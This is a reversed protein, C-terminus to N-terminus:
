EIEIVVRRNASRGEDSKNDRRPKNYAEGYVRVRKKDIGRSILYKAVADARKLSLRKNDVYSGESDTHGTIKILDYGKEIIELAKQSLYKKTKDDLRTSWSPFDSLEIVTALTVLQPAAANAPGTPPSATFDGESERRILVAQEVLAANDVEAFAALAGGFVAASMLFLMVYHKM